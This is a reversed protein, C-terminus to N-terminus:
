ASYIAPLSESFFFYIRLTEVNTSNKKDETWAATCQEIPTQVLFVEHVTVNETRMALVLVFNATCDRNNENECDFGHCESLQRIAKKSFHLSHFCLYNIKM